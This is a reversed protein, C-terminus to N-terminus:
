TRWCRPQRPPRACLGSPVQAQVFHLFFEDDVIISTLSMSVQLIRVQAGSPFAEDVHDSPGIAPGPFNNPPSNRSM